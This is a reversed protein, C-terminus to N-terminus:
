LQCTAKGAASQAHEGKKLGLRHQHKHPKLLVEVIKGGVDPTFNTEKIIADAM